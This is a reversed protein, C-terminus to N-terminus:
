TYLLIVTFSRFRELRLRFVLLRDEQNGMMEDIRISDRFSQLPNYQMKYCKSLTSSSCSSSTCQSNDVFIAINIEEILRFLPFLVFLLVPPFMHSLRWKMTACSSYNKTKNKIWTAIRRPKASFFCTGLMTSATYTRPLVNGQQQPSSL